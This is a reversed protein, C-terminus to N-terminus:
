HFTASRNGSAPFAQRRRGQQFGGSEEDNRSKGVTSSKKKDAKGARSKRGGESKEGMEADQENGLWAQKRASEYDFPKLELFGGSERPKVPQKAKRTESISKFCNQFSSSLDGLSMTEDGDDTELQKNKTEITTSKEVNAGGEEEEEEEEDNDEEKEELLIVDELSSSQAQISSPEEHLLRQSVKAPEEVVLQLTEDRPVFSHFPLNVSSKIQELKIEEKDLILNGRQLQIGWFHGLARSPKKLVQVTAGAGAHSVKLNRNTESIQESIIPSGSPLGSVHNDAQIMKHGNEGFHESAREQGYRCIGAINNGLELSGRLHVSNKITEPAEPPLAENGDAPVMNEEFATQARWEKILEVTEEFAAANQMSHKIISVVSGLSREVYPHKSNVLRRLKSTTVPM